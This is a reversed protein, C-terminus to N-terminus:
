LATLNVSFPFIATVAAIEFGFFRYTSKVIASVPSPMGNSKKGFSKLANELSSSDIVRCRSPSPSPNNTAFPIALFIPPSSQHSRVEVCPGCFPVSNRIWNGNVGESTDFLVGPVGTTCGPVGNVVGVPVFRGLGSALQDKSTCVRGM